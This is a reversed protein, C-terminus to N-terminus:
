GCTRHSISRSAKSCYQRSSRSRTARQAEWGLRGCFKVLEKPRYKWGSLESATKPASASSTCSRSARPKSNTGSRFSRARLSTSPQRRLQRRPPMALMGGACRNTRDFSEIGKRSTRSVFTRHGRQKQSGVSYTLFTTGNSPDTHRGSPLVLVYDGKKQHQLFAGDNNLRLREARDFPVTDSPRDVELTYLVTEAGTVRDVHVVVPPKAVRIALAKIDTVGEDFTGNAKAYRVTQDFLDAFYDFLANQQEVDLALVRNLFRPVNYLDEKRIKEVGDRVVLLGIDRLTQQPNTLGKVSEGVIIRRFMLCLAAQGEETEFNYKALDGNDAAGRDGKTLAGLSALRRAITSSFRKEGGLETTLLVYEPPVAQDSRHTRGFSQMQKDASWGLELTIHVRRQRNEARNSAHLSIGMSGADSIIAVRMKGGPLTGDLSRQNPAHGRRRARAEQIRGQRRSDRILRRTRGTLEAVNKEGFHNVLQDLPNEPLELASLGDLLGQKMRLAEKSQVPSGTQTRVLVQITKGTAPDTVDQYLTTPFGRDVMAAIVERPSFDLDELMGGDATVQSVQERTRAEGTGVLSIVVSKGEEIRSRNGCDREASQFRLNSTSLIASSRGLVKSLTLARARVPMPSTWRRTSTECCSRGRRRRMTTCKRQEATLPHIRERYEVAKGSAPYVGFSISGSLYMGLSKMDRSVMEMAGVGGSEIEQM